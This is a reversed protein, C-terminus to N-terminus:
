LKGSRQGLAAPGVKALLENFKDVLDRRTLTIHLNGNKHAKFQFYPTDFEWEGDRLKSEILRTVSSKHNLKGPDQNDLVMFVRELDYVRNCANSYSNWYCGRLAGSLIIKKRLCIGDNNVFGQDLSNFVKVADDVFLILRNEFYYTLTDHTSDLTFEPAESRLQENLKDKTDTNILATVRTANICRDWFRADIGQTIKPLLHDYRETYGSGISKLLVAALLEKAKGNIPCHRELLTNLENLSAIVDAALEIARDRAVLLEGIVEAGNAMAQDVGEFTYEQINSM